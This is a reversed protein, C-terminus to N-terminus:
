RKKRMWSFPKLLVKGLRYAHSHRIQDLEWKLRSMEELRVHSELAYEYYPQYIDPHNRCIQILSEKLYAGTLSTTRSTAKIRYHFLVEDIRHVADGEKLLSLWFDWDEYGHVMNRNYGGTQDFDSRRFFATCFICNDWKFREYEYEELDWPGVSDGFTDAKCYVLKTEPFRLFYDMAKEVYTPAILDDADLPLVFTGESNLIGFNRAQSPGENEKRFYKFRSDKVTYEKAIEETNDVSGDNVIICEWQQYTQARVSDLTEALYGAQNYCPVIISVEASKMKM